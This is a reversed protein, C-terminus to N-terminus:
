NIKEEEQFNGINIHLEIWSTFRATNVWKANKKIFTSNNWQDLRKEISKKRCGFQCLKKWHLVWRRFTWPSIILIVMIFIMLTLYAWHKLQIIKYMGWAILAFKVIVLIWVIIKLGVNVSNDFIEKVNSNCLKKLSDFVDQVQERTIPNEQPSTYNKDFEEIPYTSTEFDYKFIIREPTSEPIFQQEVEFFNQPTALSWLKCM